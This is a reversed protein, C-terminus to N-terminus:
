INNFVSRYLEATNKSYTQKIVHVPHGEFIGASINEAVESTPAVFTLNDWMDFITSFLAKNFRRRRILAPLKISTPYDEPFTIVTSIGAKILANALYPLNIYDLHLNNIAVVDPGTLFIENIIESTSRTSHMAHTDGIYALASHTKRELSNGTKSVLVNPHNSHAHTSYGTALRAIIRDTKNDFDIISATSESMSYDIIYITM